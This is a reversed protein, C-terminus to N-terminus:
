VLFKSLFDIIFIEKFIFYVVGVTLFLKSLFFLAEAPGKCWIFLLAAFFLLYFLDMFVGFFSYDIVKVEGISIVHLILLNIMNLVVLVFLLGLLMLLVLMNLVNMLMFVLIM